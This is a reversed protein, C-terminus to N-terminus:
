QPIRICLFAGQVPPPTPDNLVIELQGDHKLEFTTMLWSDIPPMHNPDCTVVDFGDQGINSHTFQMTCDNDQLFELAAYVHGGEFDGSVGKCDWVGLYPVCVEAVKEPSCLEAIEESDPPDTGTEVFIDGFQDADGGNNIWESDDCFICSGEGERSECGIINFVCVVVAFVVFSTTKM